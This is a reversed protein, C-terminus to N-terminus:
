QLRARGQQTNTSKAKSILMPRNGCLKGNKERMARLMEFPDTFSVFGFGKCKERSGDLVVHISHASPYDKFVKQVQEDRAESSLNGIFLRHDAAVAKGSEAPPKTSAKSQFVLNNHSSSSPAVFAGSPPSVASSTGPPHAGTRSDHQQSLGLLDQLYNRNLTPQVSTVLEEKKAATKRKVLQVPQLTTKVKKPSPEGKLSSNAPSEDAQADEQQVKDLDDHLGELFEELSSM